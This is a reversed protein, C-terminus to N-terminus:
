GAHRAEDRYPTGDGSWRRATFKMASPHTGAAAAIAAWSFGEDHLAIVLRAREATSAEGARMRSTLTRLQRAKDAPVPGKGRFTRGNSTM